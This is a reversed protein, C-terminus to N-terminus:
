RHASWDVAVRLGESRQSADAIRVLFRQGDPAVDYYFGERAAGAADGEGANMGEVHFLLRPAVGPVTRDLAM